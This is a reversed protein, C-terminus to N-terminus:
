AIGDSLNQNTIPYIFPLLILYVVTRQGVIYSNLILHQFYNCKARFFCLYSAFSIIPILFLVAYAYHNVMWQIVDVLLFSSKDDPNESISNNVGALFDSFMSSKGSIATLVAYTALLIFVYAFPKFHKVGKGNLYDRITHGPRTFLEKTTYLIM